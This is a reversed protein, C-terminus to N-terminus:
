EERLIRKLRKRLKEHDSMTKAVLNWFRPGHNMEKLHCLEHVILYDQLDEPLFIIKYNFNLNKKSSCSGWQTRARRIAVGKYVLGYWSNWYELKEKVLERAKEKHKQYHAPDHTMLHPNGTKKQSLQGLIWETNKRVFIFVQKDTVWWPRHVIVAGDNHITLTINKMKRRRRMEFVVEMEPLKLTHLTRSVRKQSKIQKTSTDQLAKSINKFIGLM